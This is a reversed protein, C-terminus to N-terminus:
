NIKTGTSDVFVSYQKGRFLVKFTFSKRQSPLTGNFVLEGNKVRMGGYGM